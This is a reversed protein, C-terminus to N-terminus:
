LRVFVASQGAARGRGRAIPPTIGSHPLPYVVRVLPEGEAELEAFLILRFGAGACQRRLEPGVSGTAVVTAFPCAEILNPLEDASCVVTDMATQGQIYKVTDAGLTDYMPVVVVGTKYCAEAAVMWEASNKLYLGLFRYGEAAKPVLQLKWLAAAVRDIRASVEAYTQWAYPGISGDARFRTGFCPANPRLQLGSAFLGYINKDSAGPRLKVLEYPSLACRLVPGDEASSGVVHSWGKSFDM